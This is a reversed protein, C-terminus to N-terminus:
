RLSAPLGFDMMSVDTALYKAERVATRSVGLHVCLEDLPPLRSGTELQRDAILDLIQHAVQESLAGKGIGVPQYITSEGM